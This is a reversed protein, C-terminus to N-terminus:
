WCHSGLHWAVEGYGPGENVTENWSVRGREGCPVWSLKPAEALLVEEKRWSVETNWVDYEACIHGWRKKRWGSTTNWM